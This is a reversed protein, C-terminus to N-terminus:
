HTSRQKRLSKNENGEMISDILAPMEKPPLIYDPHDYRISTLPMGDFLATDPDQVIVIGGNNEIAHSGDTGDTGTGSMIIGIVNPGENEAISHFFYNITHNVIQEEARPTLRFIGKELDITHSSPSIHITDPQIRMNDKILVVKIQTIRSLIDVLQSKYDRPAHIIVVYAEGHNVSKHQFFEKIAQLGGASAGIAIIHM